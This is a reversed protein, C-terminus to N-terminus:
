ESDILRETHYAFLIAIFNTANVYGRIITYDRLSRKTKEHIVRYQHAMVNRSVNVAPKLNQLHMGVNLQCLIRYNDDSIAKYENRM